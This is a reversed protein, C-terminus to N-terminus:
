VPQLLFEDNSAPRHNKQGKRGKKEAKREDKATQKAQKRVQKALKKEKRTLRPFESGEGRLTRGPHFINMLICAFFLPLGDLAYFYAEHFPIPNKDPDTGSSFEVLRFVVRITIAILMGFLAYLLPRWANKPTPLISGIREIDRMIIYFKIAIFTFLLIFLQQAGIGGMYIDIGLKQSDSDSSLM